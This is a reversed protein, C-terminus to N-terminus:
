KLRQPEGHFRELREGAREIANVREELGADGAIGLLGMSVVLHEVGAARHRELNAEDFAGELRVYSPFPGERGLEKRLRDLEAVARMSVELAVAPGFWGDMRRATRRMM